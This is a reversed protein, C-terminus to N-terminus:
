VAEGVQSAAVPWPPAQPLGRRKPSLPRRAQLALLKNKGAASRGIQHHRGPPSVPQCHRLEQFVPGTKNCCPLTCSRDKDTLGRAPFTNAASGGWSSGRGSLPDAVQCFCMAGSASFPWNAGQPSQINQGQLGWSSAAIARAPLAEARLGV